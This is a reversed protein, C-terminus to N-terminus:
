YQMPSPKQFRGHTGLEGERGGRKDRRGIEKGEGERRKNGGRTWLV